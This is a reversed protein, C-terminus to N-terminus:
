LNEAQKPEAYPIVSFFYSLFIQAQTCVSSVPVATFTVLTLLRSSNLKTLWLFFYNEKKIKQFPM